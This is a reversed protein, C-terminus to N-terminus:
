ELLVTPVPAYLVGAIRKQIGRMELVNGIEPRIYVEEAVDVKIREEIQFVVVFHVSERDGQVFEGFRNRSQPISRFTLASYKRFGNWLWCKERCFKHLFIRLVYRFVVSHTPQRVITTLIIIITVTRKM